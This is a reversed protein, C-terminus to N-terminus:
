TDVHTDKILIVLTHNNALRFTGEFNSTTFLAWFLYFYPPSSGATRLPHGLSNTWCIASAVGTGGDGM